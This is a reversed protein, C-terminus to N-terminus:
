TKSIGDIFRSCCGRILVFLLSCQRLKASRKGGSPHESGRERAATGTIYLCNSPQVRHIPEPICLFVGYSVARYIERLAAL